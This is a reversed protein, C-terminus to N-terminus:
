RCERLLEIAVFHPLMGRGVLYFLKQSPWGLKSRLAGCESLQMKKESLPLQALETIALRGDRSRQWSDVIRDVTPNGIIEM